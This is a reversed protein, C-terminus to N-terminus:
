DLAPDLIPSPRFGKVILYVTLSLEWAIEPVSLLSNVASGNDYAGLVIAIGSAFILPGGILGLM